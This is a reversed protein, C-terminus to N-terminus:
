KQLTPGLRSIKGSPPFDTGSDGRWWNWGVSVCHTTTSTAM